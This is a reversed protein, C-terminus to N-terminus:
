APTASHVQAMDRREMGKSPFIARVFERKSLGFAKSGETLDFCMIHFCSLVLRGRVISLWQRNGDNISGM